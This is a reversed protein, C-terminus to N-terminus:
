KEPGAIFASAVLLILVAARLAYRDFDVMRPSPTGVKLAAVSQMMRRRHVAWLARTTPDGDDNALEDELGSAPNHSLGSSRDIRALAQQRSPRRLGFLPLVSVIVALGFLAVGAIRWTRSVDLWFGVFSLSVFVGLVLAPPIIARWFKEWLLAATAFSVLKELRGIPTKGPPNKNDAL